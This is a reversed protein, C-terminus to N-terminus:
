LFLTIKYNVLYILSPNIFFYVLLLVLVSLIITKTTKIPYYLKGILCNEFYLIKIIWVYYFVSGVSCIISILGVFYFSLGVISLFLGMKALFGVFPPMGSISFMCISLFLALVNNSKKLLALDILELNFKHKFNKLILLWETSSRTFM